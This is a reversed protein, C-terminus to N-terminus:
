ALSARLAAAITRADTRVAAANPGEVMVRAKMETGSYRVLVRGEGALRAEVDAILAQVAPLQDFPVKRAVAINM